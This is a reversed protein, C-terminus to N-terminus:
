VSPVRAGSPSSRESEETKLDADPCRSMVEESKVQWMEMNPTQDCEDESLSMNKLNMKPLNM